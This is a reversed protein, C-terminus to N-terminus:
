DESDSVGLGITILQRIAEPRTLEGNPHTQRWGDIAALEAPHLRM